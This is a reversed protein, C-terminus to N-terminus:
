IKILNHFITNMKIVLYDKNENDNDIACISYLLEKLKNM